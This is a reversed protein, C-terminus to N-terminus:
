DLEEETVLSEIDELNISRATIGKSVDGYLASCAANLLNVGNNYGQAGGLPLDPTFNTVPILDITGDNHTKFIKWESINMDYNNTGASSGYVSANVGDPIIGTYLHLTQCIFDRGIENYGNDDDTYYDKDWDYTASITPLTIVIDELNDEEEIM